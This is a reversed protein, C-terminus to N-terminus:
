HKKRAKETRDRGMLAMFEKTQQIRKGIRTRVSVKLGPKELIHQYEALIRQGLQIIEKTDKVDDAPRRDRLQLVDVLNKCNKPLSVSRKRPNVFSNM